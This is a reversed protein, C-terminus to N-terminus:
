WANRAREKAIVDKFHKQLESEDYTGARVPGLLAEKHDVKSTLHSRDELSAFKWNKAIAMLHRVKAEDHEQCQRAYFEESSILTWPGQHGEIIKVPVDRPFHPLEPATVSNQIKTEPQQQAPFDAPLWDNATDAMYDSLAFGPFAGQQMGLESVDPKAM